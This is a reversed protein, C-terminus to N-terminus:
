EATKRFAANCTFPKRRASEHFGVRAAFTLSATFRGAEFRSTSVAVPTKGDMQVVDLEGALPKGTAADRVSATVRAPEPQPEQYDPTEFYIPNTIAVQDEAAGYCRVIYWATQSEELDFSTALQVTDPTFTRIVTGNRLVEVRSLKEGIRGAAWARLVAKPKVPGQLKVVDGIGYDGITLTVLPGSTVFNRGAKMAQALRDMTLAGDLRTYVRVKGPVGGGPNDFTTDSSATGAIRYGKNLLLFWLDQAQRNVEREHPQMTIDIADYTPGAVTDFPLEAAMNSVFKKEEVPYGGRGGWKGWWWRHPHTCAVMGGLSHIFAQIEFNPMPTKESEYDWASMALLEAIADRGDRTRGRM